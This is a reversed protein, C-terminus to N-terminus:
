GRVTRVKREGAVEAKAKARAASLRATVESEDNAWLNGNLRYASAPTGHQFSHPSGNM